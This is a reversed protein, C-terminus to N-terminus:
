STRCTQFLSLVMVVVSPMAPYWYVFPLTACVQSLSSKMEYTIELSSQKAVKREVGEQMDICDNARKLM